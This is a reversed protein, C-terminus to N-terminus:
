DNEKDKIMARIDVFNNQLPYMKAAMFEYMAPWDSKRHLDVGELRAYIRCVEEGLDREFAFDWILDGELGEEIVVKYQEIREFMELRRRENRHNIELIVDAYKRGPDFKLHIGRMKTRHLIWKRPNDALHPLQECFVDFGAWFDVILQRKQEKSYM